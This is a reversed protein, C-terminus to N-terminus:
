ADPPAEPWRATTTCGEGPAGQMLLSSEPGKAQLLRDRVNTLGVGLTAGPAVGVGNDQVVVECWGDSARAQVKLTVPHLSPEVGHGIANEVLTLVLGPPITVAGALGDLEVTSQLRTGLRTGMIDLYHRVFDIEQALTVKDQGMADTTGRLFGTLSKLLPAARDDKIDVWHQVAALTNFVFHPQIQMQLVKLRQETARRSQGDREAELTAMRLRQVITQQRMTAVALMIGTLVLVVLAAALLGMLGRTSFLKQGLATLDMSGQGMLGGFVMGFVAGLMGLAVWKFLTLTRRNKPLFRGPMLWVSLSSLGLQIWVIVSILISEVWGLELRRLVAIGLVVGALLLVWVKLGHRSYLMRDLMIAEDRYSPDMKDYYPQARRAYGRQLANGQSLPKLVPVAAEKTPAASPTSAEPASTKM